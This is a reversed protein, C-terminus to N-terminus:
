LTNTEGNKQSGFPDDTPKQASTEETSGNEQQGEGENKNNLGLDNLASSPTITVSTTTVSVGNGELLAKVARPIDEESVGKGKLYASLTAVEDENGESEKVKPARGQETKASPDVEDKNTDCQQKVPESDAEKSHESENSPNEKDVNKCGPGGMLVFASGENKIKEVIIPIMEEPVSQKRLTAAIQEDSQQETPQDSSFSMELPVFGLGGFALQPPFLQEIKTFLSKLKEIKQQENSLAEVGKKLKEVVPSPLPCQNEEEKTVCNLRYYSEDISIPGQTIFARCLQARLNTKITKVVPTVDKPPLSSPFNGHLQFELTKVWSGTTVYFTISGEECFQLEESVIKVISHAALTLVPSDSVQSQLDRIKEKAIVSKTVNPREHDLTVVKNGLSLYTYYIQFGLEDPCLSQLQVFPTNDM